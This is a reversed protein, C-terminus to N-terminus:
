CFSTEKSKAATLDDLFNLCEKQQDLVPGNYSILSYAKKVSTSKLLTQSHLFYHYKQTVMADVM